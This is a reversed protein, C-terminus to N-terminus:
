LLHTASPANIIATSHRTSPQVVRMSARSQSDIHHVADTADPHAHAGGATPLAGRDPPAAAALDGSANDVMKEVRHDNAPFSDPPAAALPDARGFAIRGDLAARTNICWRGASSWWHSLLRSWRWLPGTGSVFRGRGKVTMAAINVVRGPTTVSLSTAAIRM